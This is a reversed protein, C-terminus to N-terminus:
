VLAPEAPWPQHRLQIRYNFKPKQEPDIWRPPIWHPLGNIMRCRWGLEDFHHHHYACLLTLNDISTEGGEAWPKVHHRECWQPPRDCGPFSCGGDRAIMAATQNKDAIRRSRGLWLVKGNAALVTPVIEGEDALRLVTQPSVPSDDAFRGHGVQDLLQQYGITVIVTAPTGGTSPNDDAQLLRTFAEEIADHLRQGGTRQDREDDTHRPQSLPELVAKMKQAATPTLRGQIHWGGNRDQWLYVERQAEHVQDDGLTGDPNIADVLETITQKFEDPAFRAANETLTQEAASIQEPTTWPLRDLDRLCKIARDANGAPIRGAAVAAALLPRKPELHEGLMTTEGRLAGAARVRRHAEGHDIHLTDVLLKATKCHALRHALNTVDCAVVIEHDVVAMRNRIAEFDRTFDLLQDDGVGALEDDALCDIVAQLSSDLVALAHGLSPMARRGPVETPDDSIM